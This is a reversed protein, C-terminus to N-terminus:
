SYVMYQNTGGIGVRQCNQDFIWKEPVLNVVRFVIKIEKKTNWSVISVSLISSIRMPRLLWIASLSSITKHESTRLMSKPGISNERLSKAARFMMRPRSLPKGSKLSTRFHWPNGLYWLQCSMLGCNYSSCGSRKSLNFSRYPDKTLYIKQCPLYDNMCLQLRTNIHRNAIGNTM